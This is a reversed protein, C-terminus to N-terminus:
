SSCSWSQNFWYLVDYRNQSSNKTISQIINELKKFRDAWNLRDKEEHVRCGSCIGKEDFVIGFPHNEPYLCRKCYRM